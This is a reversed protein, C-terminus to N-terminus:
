EDARSRSPVRGRPRARRSRPSGRAARTPARPAYAPGGGFGTGKPSKPVSLGGQWGRGEAAEDRSTRFGRLTGHWDRVRPRDQAPRHQPDPLAHHDPRHGRCEEQRQERLQRRRPSRGPQAVAPRQLDRRRQARTPVSAPRGPQHWHCVRLAHDVALRAPAVRLVDVHRRGREPQRWRRASQISARLRQFGFGGGLYFVGSFPFWRFTGQAADLKLSASNDPLSLTPLISYQAGLALTRRVKVLAEIEIPRPLSIIGLLIVPRFVPQREPEPALPEPPPPPTEPVPPVILTPTPTPTPPIVPPAPPLPVAPPAPALRRPVDAPALPPTPAVAPPALAPPAAPAPAFTVPPPAPPRHRNLRRLPRRRRPRRRGPM